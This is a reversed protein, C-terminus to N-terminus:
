VAVELCLAIELSLVLGSFLKNGLALHTSLQSIILLDEGTNLHVLLILKGSLGLLHEALSGIYVSVLLEVVVSDCLSLGHM